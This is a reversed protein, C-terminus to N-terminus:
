SKPVLYQSTQLAIDDFIVLGMGLICMEVVSGTKLSSCRSSVRVSFMWCGPMEAGQIIGRDSILM